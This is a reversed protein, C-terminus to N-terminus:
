GFLGAKREVDPLVGRLPISWKGEFDTSDFMLDSSCV